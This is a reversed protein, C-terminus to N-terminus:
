PRILQKCQTGQYRGSVPKDLQAVLEDEWSYSYECFAHSFISELYRVIHIMLLCESNYAGYFLCTHITKLLMRFICVCIGKTVHEGYSTWFTGCSSSPVCWPNARYRRWCSSWSSCSTRRWFRLFLGTPMHFRQVCVCRGGCLMWMIWERTQYVSPHLTPPTQGEWDWRRHPLAGPHLAAPVSEDHLWGLLVHGSLCRCLWASVRRKM